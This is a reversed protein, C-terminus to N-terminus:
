LMGILGSVIGAILYWILLAQTEDWLAQEALGDHSVVKVVGFHMRNDSIQAQGAEARIPLFDAFWAPVSSEKQENVQETIIKGDPATITIRQFQGTEILAGTQAGVTAPDKGLQSISRALMSAADVNQRQLRQELYNRAGFISVAFSGAFSTLTILIVALWLQRFLPM